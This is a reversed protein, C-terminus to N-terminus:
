ERRLGPPTAIVLNPRYREAETGIRELTATTVAHVPAFDTFSDGPTAEALELLPADVEADLGFELM